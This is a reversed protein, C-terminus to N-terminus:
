GGVDMLMGQVGGEGTFCLPVDPKWGMRLGQVEREIIGIWFCDFLHGNLELLSLSGSNSGIPLSLKGTGACMVCVTKTIIKGRGKCLKCKIKRNNKAVRTGFGDCHECEELLMGCGTCERCEVEEHELSPWPKCCKPFDLFLKAADPRKTEQHVEPTDAPIRVAIIGNTAYKWDGIVWPISLDFRAVNPDCFVDLNM